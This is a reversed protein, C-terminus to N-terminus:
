FRGVPTRGYIEWLAVYFLYIRFIGFRVSTKKKELKKLFFHLNPKSFFLFNAIYMRPKKRDLPLVATLM